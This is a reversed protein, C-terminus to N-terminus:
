LGKKGKRKKDAESNGFPFGSTRKDAGTKRSIRGSTSAFLLCWLGVAGMAAYSLAALAFPTSGISMYRMYCYFACAAHYSMTVVLTPVAYPAKPDAADTTVGASTAPFVTVDTCLFTVQAQIPNSQSNHSAFPLSFTSDSFSSTLPVSGTLLVTLVGLAVLTMGLSRSFYEELAPFSHTLHSSSHPATPSSRTAERVDPALMTIILTPSLVLPVAQTILWGATGYTYAYYVKRSNAM